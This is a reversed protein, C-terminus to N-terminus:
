GRERRERRGEGEGRRGGGERQRKREREREREREGYGNQSLVGHREAAAHLGRIRPCVGVTKESGRRAHTCWEGTPSSAARHM